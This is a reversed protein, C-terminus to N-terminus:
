LGVRNKILQEQEKQIIKNIQEQKMVTKYEEDQLKISKQIDNLLKKQIVQNIKGDKPPTVIIDSDNGYACFTKPQAQDTETYAFADSVGDLENVSFGKPGNTDYMNKTMNYLLKKDNFESNQKQLFPRNENFWAVAENAVLPKNIGHIILTPVRTLSAPLQKMDDICKLMFHNLLNYNDLMKIIDLCLKSVRSYYLINVPRNNSSEM